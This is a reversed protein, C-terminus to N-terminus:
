IYCLCLCSPLLTEGVRWRAERESRTDCSPTPATNTIAWCRLVSVRGWNIGESVDEEQQHPPQNSTASRVVPVLQKLIHSRFRSWWMIYHCVFIPNKKNTKKVENWKWQTDSATSCNAACVYPPESRSLFAFHHIEEDVRRGTPAHPSWEKLVDFFLKGTQM